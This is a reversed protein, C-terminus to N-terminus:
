TRGFLRNTSVAYCGLLRWEENKLNNGSSRRLLILRSLNEHDTMQRELQVFATSHPIWGETASLCAPEAGTPLNVNTKRL